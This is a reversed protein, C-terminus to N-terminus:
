GARRRSENHEVVILNGWMEPFPNGICIISEPSLRELMADYGRMFALRNNSKCGIMGVAVTANQEVGDFCFSYSAPSSWSIMTYVINGKSQWNAGVWRNHAVSELQRWLPMDSYVSFDPTLLFAYQSYKKLSKDPYLYTSTFRYDDVAFYIGCRQNEETDHPRANSAAIM